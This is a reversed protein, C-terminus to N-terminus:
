NTKSASRDQLDLDTNAYVVAPLKAQRGDRGKHSPVPKKRNAIALTRAPRPAGAAKVWYRVRRDSAGSAELVGAEQLACRIEAIYATTLNATAPKDLARVISRVATNTVQHRAPAQKAM